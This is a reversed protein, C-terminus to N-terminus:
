TGEEPHHDARASIRNRHSVNSMLEGTTGTLSLVLVVFDLVFPARIV